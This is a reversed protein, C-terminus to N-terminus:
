GHTRGRAGRPRGTRCPWNSSVSVARRTPRRMIVRNGVTMTMMFMAVTATMQNPPSRTSAPSRWTPWIIANMCYRICIRIDTMILVISKMIAGLADTDAFRMQSTSRVSVLTTGGVSGRGSPSAPTRSNSLTRNVYGPASAGTSQSMENVTRGPSVVATMPDVPEPLDVRTLRTGRSNSGVSPRTRTPPTSTRSSSGSSRHPSIPSTGWFGYRNVPVTADLRRWPLWSAVSSSSHCASPAWARLKTSAIGWCNVGWRWPPVFTDPPRAVGEM